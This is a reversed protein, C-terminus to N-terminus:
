SSSWEADSHTRSCCSSTSSPVCKFSDKNCQTQPALSPLITGDSGYRSHPHVRTRCFHTGTHGPMYRRCLHVEPKSNSSPRQHVPQLANSSTGLGTTPWEKPTELRQHRKGHPGPFRRNCLLMEVLQVFWFPTNKTLKALLGTHWVTDYAAM